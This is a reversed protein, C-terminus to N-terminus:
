WREEAGTFDVCSPQRAIFHGYLGGTGEVFLKKCLYDHNRM